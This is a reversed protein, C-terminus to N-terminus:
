VGLIDQIRKRLNYDEDDPIYDYEYFVEGDDGYRIDNMDFLKLIRELIPREEVADIHEDFRYARCYFLLAYYNDGRQYFARATILLLKKMLVGPTDEAVKEILDLYYKLEIQEFSDGSDIIHTLFLLRTLSYPETEKMVEKFSIEEIQQEEEFLKSYKKPIKKLFPLVKEAEQEFIDKYEHLHAFGYLYEATKRKDTIESCIHKADPFNEPDKRLQKYIMEALYFYVLEREDCATLTLGWFCFGVIEAIEPETKFNMLDAAIDRTDRLIGAISNVDSRKIYMRALEAGNWTTQAENMYYDEDETGNKQEAALKRLDFAAKYYPMLKNDDDLEERYLEELEEIKEALNVIENFELSLRRCIDPLKDYRQEIEFELAEGYLKEQATCRDTIARWYYDFASDPDDDATYSAICEYIFCIAEAKKRDECDDEDDYLFFDELSLEANNEDEESVKEYAKEENEAIINLPNNRQAISEAFYLYELAKEKDDSLLKGANLCSYIYISDLLFDHENDRDKYYKLLIGARALEDSTHKDLSLIIDEEFRDTLYEVINYLVVKNMYGLRQDEESHERQKKATDVDEGIYKLVRDIYPKEEETLNHLAFIVLFYTGTIYRESLGARDAPVSLRELLRILKRTTEDDDDDSLEDSIMNYVEDVDDTDPCESNELEELKATIIDINSM